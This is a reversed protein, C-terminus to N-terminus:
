RITNASVLSILLLWSATHPSTATWHMGVTGSSFTRLACLIHTPDWTQMFLWWNRNHWCWTTAGTCIILTFHLYRLNTWNKPVKASSYFLRKTRVRQAFVSITCLRESTPLLTVSPLLTKRDRSFGREVNHQNCSNLWLKSWHSNLLSSCLCWGNLHVFFHLWVM